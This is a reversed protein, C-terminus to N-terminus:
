VRVQVVDKFQAEIDRLVADMYHDALNFTAREVDAEWDVHYTDVVHDIWGTRRGNNSFKFAGPTPFGTQQAKRIILQAIRYAKGAGFAIKRLRVWKVLSYLLDGYATGYRPVRSAPIGTNLTTGYSLHAVAIEMDDLVRQTSAVVSRALAGTLNHGQAKLENVLQSVMETGIIDFDTYFQEIVETKTM